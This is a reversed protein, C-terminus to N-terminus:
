ARGGDAGGGVHPRRRGSATAATLRMTRGPLARWTAVQESAGDRTHVIM